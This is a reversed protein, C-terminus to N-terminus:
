KNFLHFDEFLYLMTTVIDSRLLPLDPGPAAARVGVFHVFALVNKQLIQMFYKTGDLSFPVTWHALKNVSNFFLSNVVRSPSSFTTRFSIRLDHPQPIQFSSSREFTTHMDHARVSTLVYEVHNFSVLFIFSLSGPTGTTIPPFRIEGSEEELPFDGRVDTSFFLALSCFKCLGVAPVPFSFM